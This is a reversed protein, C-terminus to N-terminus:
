AAADEKARLLCELQARAIDESDLSWPPLGVMQAIRRWRERPAEYQGALTKLFYDPGIGLEPAMSSVVIAPVREKAWWKVLTGRYTVGHTPRGQADKM